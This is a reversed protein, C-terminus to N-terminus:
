NSSILRLISVGQNLDFIVFFITGLSIKFGGLFFKSEAEFSELRLAKDNFLLNNAQPSYKKPNPPIERPM